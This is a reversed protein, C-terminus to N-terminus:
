FAYVIGATVIVFHLWNKVYGDGPWVDGTSTGTAGGGLYRAGLFLAGPESVEAGVRFAADLIAGTVENDSGNLYSVPAYIGDAELEAFFREQFRTRARLKLAPVLGLGGNRRLRTGDTSEFKINANRIQLSLGLALDGGKSDPFLQYLYSARYFPFGYVSKLGTSDPFTEGDFVAAERLFVETEIALPQYLLIFTNRRGAEIELSYRSVPFLLDQGGDEVYDFDTGDKGFQVQHSLVGLFGFEAIGRFRVGKREKGDRIDEAGAAKAGTAQGSAPPSLALVALLFILVASSRKWHINKM